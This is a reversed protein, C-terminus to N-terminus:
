RYKLGLNERVPKNRNILHRVGLAGLDNIEYHAQSYEFGQGKSGFDFAGDCIYKTLLAWAIPDPSFTHHRGLSGVDWNKDPTFGSDPLSALLHALLKLVIVLTYGYSRDVYVVAEWLKEM